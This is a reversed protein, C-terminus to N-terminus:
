IQEGRLHKGYLREAAPINERYWANWQGTKDGAILLIATRDPDFAFLIRLNGGTSRLEKMNHTKTKIQAVLPRGLTPGHEELEEIAPIIQRRSDTDLENLLWNEVQGSLEIEWAM